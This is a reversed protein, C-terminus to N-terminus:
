KDWGAGYYCPYSDRQPIQKKSAMKKRQKLKGYITYMNKKHNEEQQWEYDYLDISRNESLTFDRESKKTEPIIDTERYM